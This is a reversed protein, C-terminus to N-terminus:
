EWILFESAETTLYAGDEAILNDYIDLLFNAVSIRYSTGGPETIIIWDTDSRVTKEELDLVTISM